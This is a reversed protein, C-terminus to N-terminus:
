FEDGLVSLATEYLKTYCYDMSSHDCHVLVKKKLVQISVCLDFEDIVCSATLYRHVETDSPFSFPLTSKCTMFLLDGKSLADHMLDGALGPQCPHNAACAFVQTRPHLKSVPSPLCALCSQCPLHLGMVSQCIVADRILSKSLYRVRPMLCLRRTNRSQAGGKSGNSELNRM